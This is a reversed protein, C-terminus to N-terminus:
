KRKFAKVESWPGYAKKGDVTKYARVKYYYTKGKTATVLKSKATTSKVTTPTKQTASKKTMKSIQYGTEGAINTWSVKVKTGSKTVKIGTVKKLTTTSATRYQATDYYKTTKGSEKYYPVVKFTYKTGAALNKKLYSTKTTTGASSWTGASAKKYYVLYGTAGTSKKWTFKIDNYGGTADASNLNAAASSVKKPVITFFLEVSDDYYDDKFSVTVKYRGVSKKNVLGSISSPTVANGERDTVALKPASIYSGTYVKKTYSLKVTGIAPIVETKLTDGCASCTTVIIGDATRSAKTIDKEETHGKASDTDTVTRTATCNDCQATKTGDETCTADENSVYKTFSHEALPTIEEERYGCGNQCTRVNLGTEGCTAPKRNEM